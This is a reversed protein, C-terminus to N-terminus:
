NPRKNSPALENLFFRTTPRGGKSGKSNTTIQLDIIDHDNRLRYLVMEKEHMELNRFAAFNHGIDRATIGKTGHSAVISAVKDAIEMLPSAGMKLKVNEAMDRTYFRVYDHAWEVDEAEVTESGNSAAVIMAVRMMIEWGRVFLDQLGQTEYAKGLDLFDQEAAREVKAADKSIKM